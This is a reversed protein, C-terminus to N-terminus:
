FLWGPDRADIGHAGLAAVVQEPAGTTALAHNVVFLGAFLVLLQWDVLGLPALPAQPQLAPRRRRRAGRDRAALRDRPLDRAACRDRHAGQGGAVRELASRTRRHPTWARETAGARARRRRLPRPLLGGGGGLDGGPRAPGARRRRGSLALVLA